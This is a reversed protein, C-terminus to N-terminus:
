SAFFTQSQHYLANLRAELELRRAELAQGREQPPVWLPAGAMIVIPSFPWPLEFRDWSNFVIKRRAAVALPIIPAGAERALFVVGKQVVRAPGRSGDAVIGGSHGSHFYETITRLAQAGGKLRSGSVVLFNLGRAVDAIFEGDRSPSAMLVLPARHAYYRRAYTLPFLLHCHWATYLVPRGALALGLAEPDAVVRTPCTRLYGQVLLRALTPGWRRFLPTQRLKM